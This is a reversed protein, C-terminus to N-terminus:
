KGYLDYWPIRKSGGVHKWKLTRGAQVGRRVSVGLHQDGFAGNPAM